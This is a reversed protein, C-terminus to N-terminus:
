REDICAIVESGFVDQLPSFYPEDVHRRGDVHLMNAIHAIQMPIM